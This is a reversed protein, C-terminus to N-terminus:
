AIGMAEAVRLTMALDNKLYDIAQSREEPTGFYLRAFDAGTTGDDPKHGVGFFRALADLSITDRTGCSWEQMTDRFCPAFYRRNALLDAPVPIGNAWSRRVLFPLDFGFINHGAINRPPKATKAKETRAWFDRILWREDVTTGGATQGHGLVAMGKESAYGIAIIQGTTASLPARSIFEQKAAEVAASHGALLADHEAKVSARKEARKAEDKTNGYRVMAEDWDPPPDPPAFFQEIQEWPLPGTEIDFVLM